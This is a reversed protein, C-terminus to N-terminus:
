SYPNKSWTSPPILSNPPRHQYLKIEMKELGSKGVPNPDFMTLSTKRISSPLPDKRTEQLIKLDNEAGYSPSGSNTPLVYRSIHHWPAGFKLKRWDSTADNLDNTALGYYSLPTPRINKKPIIETTLFPQKGEYILLLGHLLFSPLLPLITWCSKKWAFKSKFHFFCRRFHVVRLSSGLFFFFCSAGFLVVNKKERQM